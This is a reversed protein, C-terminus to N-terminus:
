QLDNCFFLSTKILEGNIMVLYNVTHKSWLYFFFMKANWDVPLEMHLHIEGDERIGESYSITKTDYIPHIGLIFEKWRTSKKRKRKRIRGCVFNQDLHM